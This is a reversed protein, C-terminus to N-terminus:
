MHGADYSSGAKIEPPLNKESTRVLWKQLRQIKREVRMRGFFPLRRYGPQRRRFESVYLRVRGEALTAAIINQPHLDAMYEIVDSRRAFAVFERIAAHLAQGGEAAKKPLLPAIGGDACRIMQMCLAAGLDTDVFGHCRPIHNYIHTDNLTQLYKGAKNDAMNPDREDAPIWLRFIHRRRMKETTEPKVIKLCLDPANPHIFCWREKGEAFPKQGSLIIKAGKM